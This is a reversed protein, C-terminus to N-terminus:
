TKAKEKEKRGEERGEKRGEKRGRGEQGGRDETHTHTVNHTSNQTNYTHTTHAHTHTTHTHTNYIHIDYTHQIHTHAWVMPTMGWAGQWIGLLWEESATYKRGKAGIRQPLTKWWCLVQEPPRASQEPLGPTLKDRGRRHQSPLMHESVQSKMHTRSILSLEKLCKVLQVMEWVRNRGCKIAL